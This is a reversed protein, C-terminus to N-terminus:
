LQFMAICKIKDLQKKKNNKEMKKNGFHLGNKELHIIYDM